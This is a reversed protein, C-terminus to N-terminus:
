AGEMTIMVKGCDKSGELVALGEGFEELSLKHSIVASLDRRELLEIADEFREPYEM